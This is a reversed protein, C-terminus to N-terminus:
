NTLRGLEGLVLFLPSVFLVCEPERKPGHEGRGGEPDDWIQQWEKPLDDIM